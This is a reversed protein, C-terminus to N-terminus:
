EPVASSWLSAAATTRRMRPDAIVAACAEVQIALNVYLGDPGGADRVVTELAEACDQVTEAHKFFRLAQWFPLKWPQM